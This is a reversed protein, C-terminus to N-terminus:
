LGCAERFADVKFLKNTKELHTINAAVLERYAKPPLDPQMRKLQAAIICLHYRTLKSM